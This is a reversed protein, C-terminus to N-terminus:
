ERNLAQTSGHFHLGADDSRLIGLDTAVFMRQPDAPDFAISRAPMVTLKQWTAGGDASRFLGGSTGAFVLGPLRSNRVVVYTRLSGGAQALNAWTGGGDMSNYLGTCAGAFLNTRHSTDVDISFIDSDAPMGKSIRHWTTGANSTKWALHPTGAYLTNRDAPDFALSVVPQPGATDPSQLRTWNEGGDHTLFVGEPTGAAMVSSDGAWLALAWVQKRELGRLQEWTAGEDVSRFLGADKPIESSVAVLYLNPKTPDILMAHLTSRLAGPFPLPSWTEAGDRSRFLQAAATGALVTGPHHPDAQITTMAGGIGVKIEGNMPATWCTLALTALQLSIGFRIRLM